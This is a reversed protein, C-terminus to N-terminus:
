VKITMNNGKSWILRTVLIFSLVSLVLIIGMSIDLFMTRGIVSSYRTLYGILIIDAILPILSIVNFKGFRYASKMFGKNRFNIKENMIFNSFASVEGGILIAAPYFLGMSLSFYVAILNMIYTMSGFLSLLIYSHNFSHAISDFIERPKISKLHHKGATKIVEVTKIGKSNLVRTSEILFAKGNLHTDKIAMAAEKTFLRNMSFGNYFNGFSLLNSVETVVMALIGRKSSEVINGNGIYPLFWVANQRSYNEFTVINEAGLEVAAAFGTRLTSGIDNGHSFRIFKLNSVGRYSDLVDCDILAVTGPVSIKDVESVFEQRKKNNLLDFNPLLLVTSPNTMSSYVKHSYKYTVRITIVTNYITKLM